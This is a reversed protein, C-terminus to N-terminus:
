LLAVVNLNKMRIQVFYGYIVLLSIITPMCIILGVLLYEVTRLRRDIHRQYENNTEYLYKKYDVIKCIPIDSKDSIMVLDLENEEALKLADYTNVVDGSEGIVIDGVLRVERDRIAKNIKDKPENSKKFNNKRFNKAM